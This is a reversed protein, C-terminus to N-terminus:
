DGASMTATSYNHPGMTNGSATVALGTWPAGTLLLGSSLGTGTNNTVSIAPGFSGPGVHLEVGILGPGAGTIMNNAILLGTVPSTTLVSRSYIAAMAAPVTYRIRNATVSSNNVSETYIATVPTTQTINNGTISIDACIGGSHPVAKIVPGAAGARSIANGIVVFGSCVNAVDISAANDVAVDAIVNGSIVVDTSRYVTVKSQMTNNAIAAGHTSTLSVSATCQEFTNGTIVLRGDVDTAGGTAEGDVCTKLSRILPNNAIVVDYVNRQITIASRACDEFHNNTIRVGRVTLAATNGLLKICDGKRTETNRPNRFTVDDVVIDTIPACTAGSCVASTAIAHTQEDTNTTGSLDLTLDRVTVHAASPDISFLAVGSAGQDGRIEIVTEPGAGRLTVYRGHTSLAAFRNYSGVPAREVTWRGPGLYVTGGDPRAAAADIAAQIAVRDSLGDNPVAGNDVPDLSATLAASATSEEPAPLNCSVLLLALIVKYM